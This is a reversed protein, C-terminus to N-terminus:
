RDAAEPLRRRLAAIEIRLESLEAALLEERGAPSPAGEIGLLHSAMTATVYGFVGLAFVSLLWGLLRGEATVPFYDTGVTTMTMATWWLAEGYTTMAREGAAQLEPAAPRELFLLGAAGIVIVLVTLAVVYVFRARDLTRALAGMGRNLSTLLRLLSASRVARAARLFRLARLVRLARLAPVLLAIVKLWNGRFYAVRDPAIVLEIVVEIIFVIWIAYVLVDFRVDSGVVFEAVLLALWVFALVILPGELMRDLTRLLQWRETEQAKKDDLDTGTV